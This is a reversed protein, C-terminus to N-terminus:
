ECYLKGAKEASKRIGKIFSSSFGSHEMENLGIITCGNPSTVKDIEREPHTGNELLLKAAGLATQAAMKLAEESHFSIEVGGQSAARISRLFFAIGCATLATASSMQEERIVETKGVSEFLDIILQRKNAEVNESFSICTMSEKVAIATNPMARVVQLNENGLKEKIRSIDVGTVTSVILKSTDVVDKIEELVKDIQNPLVCLIITDAKEVLEKNPLVEVQFGKLKEPVVQKRTSILVSEKIKFDSELIGKVLASGLNGCGIIAPKM